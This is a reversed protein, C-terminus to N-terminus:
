MSIKSNSRRHTEKRQSYATLTTNIKKPNSATIDWVLAEYSDKTIGEVVRIHGRFEALSAVLYAWGIRTRLWLM